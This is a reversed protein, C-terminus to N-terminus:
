GAVAPQELHQAALQGARRRHAGDIQDLDHHQTDQGLRDDHVRYAGRIERAHQRMHIAQGPKELQAAWVSELLLRIHHGELDTPTPNNPPSDIRSRRSEHSFGLPLRLGPPVLRLISEGLHPINQLDSEM